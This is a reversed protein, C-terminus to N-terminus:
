NWYGEYFRVANGEPTWRPNVWTAGSHPPLEWHGAMWAYRNNQWTWYGAVWVHQSTPQAPIAEPPQPAPPAQMVVYSNVAQGSVVAVAPQPQQTVVVVQAQAPATGPAPPPPATVLHSDPESACGAFALASCLLLLSTIKTPNM